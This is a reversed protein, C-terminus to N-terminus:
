NTHAGHMRTGDDTILLIAFHIKNLQNRNHVSHSHVHIDTQRDAQEFPRTNYMRVLASARAGASFFARM